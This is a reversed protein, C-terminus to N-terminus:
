FGQGARCFHNRTVMLQRALFRRRITGLSTVSLAAGVIFTEIAGYGMGAYLFAYSLGIPAIVGVCAVVFSIMFMRKLLDLRL